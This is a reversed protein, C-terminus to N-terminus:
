EDLHIRRGEVVDMTVKELEKWKKDGAMRESAAIVLALLAPAAHQLARERDVRLFARDLDNEVAAEIERFSRHTGMKEM